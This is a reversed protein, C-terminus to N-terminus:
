VRAKDAVQEYRRKATSLQESAEPVILVKRNGGLATVKKAVFRSFPPGADGFGNLLDTLVMDSTVIRAVSVRESVAVAWRYCIM